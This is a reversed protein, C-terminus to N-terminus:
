EKNLRFNIGSVQAYEPSSAGFVSKVYKKVEGATEVLNNPETYLTKNRALRANSIVAYAAAVNNNTKNLNIIKDQLATIKLDPENPAYTPESELVARLGEFHQILQDYSLQSSSITKPAPTNPDVPTEIKSARKGQIKRNFGKADKITEAEADTAQLANILRTSYARLGEFALIRANVTTNYATNKTIVEALKLDGTAKLAQLNALQLSAKSPNYNTDYGIVFEILDQFNAVNKAHGVESTSAM